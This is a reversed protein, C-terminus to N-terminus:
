ILTKRLLKAAKRYTTIDGCVSSLIIIILKEGPIFLVAPELYSIFQEGLDGFWAVKLVEIVIEHTQVSCCQVKSWPFLEFANLVNSTNSLINGLVCIDFM